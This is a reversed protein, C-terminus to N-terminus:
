ARSRSRTARRASTPKRRRYRRVNLPYPQPFFNEMFSAELCNTYQPPLVTTFGPISNTFDALSLMCKCMTCHIYICYTYDSCAIFLECVLLRSDVIGVNNDCNYTNLDIYWIFHYYLQRSQVFQFLADTKLRLHM